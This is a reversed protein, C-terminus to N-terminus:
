RKTIMEEIRQAIQRNVLRNLHSPVAGYEYKEDTFYLELDSVRVMDVDPYSKSIYEYYSDLVANIIRIKELDEFARRATLSGVRESLRNEIVVIKASDKLMCYLLDFGKKWLATCEESDRAISRGTFRSRERIGEFADSVTIYAKGTDLIDFREEILDIFVYEAKKEEALDFFVRNLERNVMMQRYRNPHTVFVHGADTRLLSIMSSFNIRCDPDHLRDMHELIKNLNYGGWTLYKFNMGDPFANELFRRQNEVLRLYDDRKRRHYQMALIDSLRYRVVGELVDKFRDYIGCRRFESILFTMAEVGLSNNASGDSNAYGNEILSDERFRRYYYLAEPVYATKGALALILSYVAPSEFSCDPLRIHWKDWLKKRSISKYTATPGYKMHERLTYPRGMVQGCSRYIKKGTKNDYRWLDCEAFDAEEREIAELLKEIYRGDVWDDPDVFAIYDGSAADLGANRASAVGGNSKDIIRIRPDKEARVKCATLSDDTSGDNVLIIELHPYTQGRLSALCEDIYEYVNYVPLIVSVMPSVPVGYKKKLLSLTSNIELKRYDWPHRIPIRNREGFLDVKPCASFIRCPISEIGSAAAVALRHLGDIMEYDDTIYVPHGPDFGKQSISVFLEKLVKLRSKATDASCHKEMCEFYVDRYIEEGTNIYEVGSLRVALWDERRPQRELIDRVKVTEERVPEGYVMTFIYPYIWVAEDDRKLTIEDKVSEHVALCVLTGLTDTEGYREVPLGHFFAGDPEGSIVCHEIRDELNWASLASYFLEAVFGSGYVTIHSKKLREIFREFTM